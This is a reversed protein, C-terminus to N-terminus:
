KSREENLFIRLKMKNNEYMLEDNSRGKGGGLEGIEM